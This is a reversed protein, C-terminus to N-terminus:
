NHPMLILGIIISVISIISIIGIWIRASIFLYKKEVKNPKLMESNMKEEIELQFEELIEETNDKEKGKEKKLSKSKINFDLEADEEIIELITDNQQNSVFSKSKKDKSNIKTDSASIFSDEIILIETNNNSDSVFSNMETMQNMATKETTETADTTETLDSTTTDKEKINEPIDPDNTISPIKVNKANIDNNNENNRKDITALKKTTKPFKFGTIPSVKTISKIAAKM